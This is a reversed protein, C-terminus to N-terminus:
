LGRAPAREDEVQHATMMSVDQHPAAHRGYPPRGYKSTFQQTPVHM